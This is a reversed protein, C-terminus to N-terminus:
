GSRLESAVAERTYDRAATRRRWRRFLASVITPGGTRSLIEFEGGLLRVRERMSTLGLSTTDTGALEFGRGDDEVELLVHTRSSQLRVAVATAGAHKAINTLAERLVSQVAIAQSHTDLQISRDGEVVVDAPARRKFRAIEADLIEEVTAVEPHGGELATVLGRLVRETDALEGILNRILTSAAVQEPAALPLVEVKRQLDGLGYGAAALSQLPGDHVDFALRMLRRRIKELEAAPTAADEGAARRKAADGRTRRTTPSVGTHARARVHGATNDM